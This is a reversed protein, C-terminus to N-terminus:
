DTIFQAESSPPKTLKGKAANVAVSLLLRGRGPGTDGAPRPADPAAPSPHRGLQPLPEGPRDADSHPVTHWPVPAVFPVVAAPPDLYQSDEQMAGIHSCM